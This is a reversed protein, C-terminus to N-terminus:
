WHNEAHATEDLDNRDKGPPESCHSQQSPTPPSHIGSSSIKPVSPIGRIAVGFSHPSVDGAVCSLFCPMGKRDKIQDQWPSRIGQLNCVDSLVDDYQDGNGSQQVLTQLRTGVESRILAKASRKHTTQDRQCSKVKDGLNSTEHMSSEAHDSQRAEM